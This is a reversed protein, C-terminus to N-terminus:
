CQLLVDNKVQIEPGSAPLTMWEASPQDAPADLVADAQAVGPGHTGLILFTAVAMWLLSAAIAIRTQRTEMM